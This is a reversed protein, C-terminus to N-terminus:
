QKILDITGRPPGSGASWTGTLRAASRPATFSVETGVADRGRAEFQDGDVSWTGADIPQFGPDDVLASMSGDGNLLMTLNGSAQPGTIPGIWTGVLERDVGTAPAM